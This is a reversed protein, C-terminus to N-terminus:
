GKGLLATRVLKLPAGGQRLFADHFKRASYATGLQKKYEERLQLIELKGYTYVLFLPDQTGRRAEIEAVQRTQLGEKQFFEVAQEVTMGRTHLALAVVFRASRLLADQLQALRLRPDGGGFGADLMMQETYHAWGESNSAVTIFKRAKSLKALWLYQVYHGPFVEHISVVDVLPRNYAGRLFDETDTATMTPGPLTVYYYAETSSEYPGPTDMSALTTARRFPPTERVQPVVESPVTVIDRDILFRRQSGLRAQTFGIIEAPRPHDKQMDLQVATMPQTPDIKKATVRFEEQLRRLEADARRSLEALPTDIMEDAWLMQQLLAPGLAFSATAKAKGDRRLYDGLRTLAAAAAEAGDKLQKQLAADKVTPFAAVVDSRFFRVTADLDRLTIDISVPAMRDLNAQATVLLPPIKQLRSVTSKLRAEATAYERKIIANVSRSCLGVYFGPRRRHDQLQERDFRLSLLHQQVLQADLRNDASLAAPDVTGLRAQWQKLWEIERAIAAPSLDELEGDRQHLGVITAETPYFEVYEDFFTDLLQTLRADATEGQKPPKPAPTAAYGPQLAGTLASPRWPTAPLGPLVALALLAAGALRARRAGPRPTRTSHPTLPSFRRRLAASDDQPLQPTPM